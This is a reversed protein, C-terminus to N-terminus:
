PLVRWPKPIFVWRRNVFILGDYSMGLKEGPKVFKFRAIPVGPQMFDLVKKYGGPFEALDPHGAILRDTSTIGFQIETQGEKPKIATNEDQWMGSHAEALRDALPQRYAALYDERTPKLALTLARYDPDRAIFRQLLRTM